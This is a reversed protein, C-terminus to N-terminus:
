PVFVKAALFQDRLAAEFRLAAEIQEIELDLDFAIDEADEGVQILGEITSTPVRTAEVCPSGAQVAPTATVFKVPRWLDAMGHTDYELPKLVPEIMPRFALQFGKGADVWEGINAFFAKGVTALRESAGIHALPRAVGLEQALVEIGRRIEQTPVLRRFLQSIILLSVLDEFDFFRDFAPEIM